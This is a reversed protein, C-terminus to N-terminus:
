LDPAPTHKSSQLVRGNRTISQLPESLHVNLSLDLHERPPHLVTNWNTSNSLQCAHHQDGLGGTQVWESSVMFNTTTYPLAPVLTHVSKDM